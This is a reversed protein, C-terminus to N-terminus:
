FYWCYFHWWFWSTNLLSLIWLINTLYILSLRIFKFIYKMNISLFVEVIQLYWNKRLKELKLAILILIRVHEKYFDFLQKWIKYTFRLCRSYAVFNQFFLFIYEVEILLKKIFGCYNLDYLIATLILLYIFSVSSGLLLNLHVYYIFMQFIYGFLEIPFLYVKWCIIRPFFM